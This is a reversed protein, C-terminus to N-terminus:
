SVTTSTTPPSTGGTGSRRRALPGRRPLHKYEWVAALAMREDEDLRARLLAVLDVTM